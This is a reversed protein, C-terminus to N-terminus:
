WANLRLNVVSNYISGFTYSLSVQCYYSYSTALQTRQLLVDANSAGAKPLSIQDRIQCFQAQLGLALGECLNLSLEQYLSLNNKRFDNLYNSGQLSTFIKGWAQKVEFTIILSHYFLTDVYRDYITEEYYRTRQLGVQYAFRLQRSTSVNYPFLDYELAPAFRILLKINCYSDTKLRADAGASWHDNLSKVIFADMTESSTITKEQSGDGLVDTRSNRLAGAKLHVKWDDTVRDATLSGWVNLKDRKKQGEIYGGVTTSFVWAHWPDAPKIATSPKDYSISLFEMAPTHVVYRMLGTKLVRALDTRVMDDSDTKKSTWVLTDNQGAFKRKGIFIFTFERGGGGTQQQTVMCHVDAQVPDRVYNVFTIETRVYNPDCEWCDLYLDLNGSQPSGAKLSDSQGAFLTSFFLLCVIFGRRIIM